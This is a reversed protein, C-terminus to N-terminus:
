LKSAQKVLLHGQWELQEYAKPFTKKFLWVSWKCAKTEDAGFIHHAFEHMASIISLSSNISITHNVPSYSCSPAEPSFIVSLPKRYIEAMKHCLGSLANFKEEDTGRKVEKWTERKWQRVAKIIEPKHKQEEALITEKDPYASGRVSNAIEQIFDQLNNPM